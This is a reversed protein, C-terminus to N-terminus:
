WRRRKIELVGGLDFALRTAGTHSQVDARLVKEGQLAKLVANRTRGSSSMTASRGDALIVKWRAIYVWLWYEARVAVIRRGQWKKGREGFPKGPERIVHVSPQGFSLKLNLQREYDM